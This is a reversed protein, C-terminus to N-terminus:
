VIKDNFIAYGGQGWNLSKASGTEFHVVSDLIEGFYSKFWVYVSNSNM